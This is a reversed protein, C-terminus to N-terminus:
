KKLLFVGAVGAIALIGFLQKFTEAGQQSQSASAAQIATISKDQSKYLQDAFTKFTNATTDIAKTGAEISALGLTEGAKVANFDTVTATYSIANDSGVVNLSTKNGEVDGTSNDQLQTSTTQNTTDSSGGGGGM